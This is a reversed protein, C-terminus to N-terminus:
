TSSLVAPSSQTKQSYCCCQTVIIHSTLDYPQGPKHLVWRSVATKHPCQAPRRQISQLGWRTRTNGESTLLFGNNEYCGWTFQSFRFDELPKSTGSHLPFFFVRPFFFWNTEYFSLFCFTWVAACMALNVTLIDYQKYFMFYISGKKFVSGLKQM